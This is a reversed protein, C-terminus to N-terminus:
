ENVAVTPDGFCDRIVRKLFDILTGRVNTGGREKIIGVDMTLGILQTRISSQSRLMPSPFTKRIKRIIITAYGCSPLNKM